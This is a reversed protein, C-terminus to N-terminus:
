FLLEFFDTFFPGTADFSLCEASTVGDAVDRLVGDVVESAPADAAFASCFPGFEEEASDDAEPRAVVSFAIRSKLISKSSIRLLLTSCPFDGPYLLNISCCPQFNLPQTFVADRSGARKAPYRVSLFPGCLGRGM